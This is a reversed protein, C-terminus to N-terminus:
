YLFEFIDQQSLKTKDLVTGRNWEYATSIFTILLYFVEKTWPLAWIRKCNLAWKKFGKKSSSIVNQSFWKLKCIFCVELYVVRLWDWWKSLMRCSDERNGSMAGIASAFVVSVSFAPSVVGEWDRLMKQMKLGICDYRWDHKATHGFHTLIIYENLSNWYDATVM